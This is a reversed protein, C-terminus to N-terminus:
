AGAPLTSKAFMLPQKVALALREEARIAVLNRIFFDSHETSIQINADERYRLEAGRRFDGALVSGATMAPSLALSVGWLQRAMESAPSGLLYEDNGTKALMATLWDAPNLVLGTPTVGGAMLAGLVRGIADLITDGTVPAIPVALPVIGQLHDAGAGNLIEADELVRISYTLESDIIGQLAAVDMLVQRSAPVWCALTECPLTITTFVINGEAKVDGENAQIGAVPHLGNQRIVQVMGELAPYAPILDAVSLASQPLGGPPISQVGPGAMTSTITAKTVLRGPVSVQAAGRMRSSAFSRVDASKAILAGLSNGVPAGDGGPLQAGAEMLRRLRQEFKQELAATLEAQKTLTATQSAMFGDLQALKARIEEALNQNEM